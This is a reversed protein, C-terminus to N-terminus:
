ETDEDDHNYRKEQITLRDEGKVTKNHRPNSCLPCNSVGCDMAHRKALKHPDEVVVGHIKAIKVQKNVANEDTQLRKSHKFKDQENSM